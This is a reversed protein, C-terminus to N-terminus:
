IYQDPLRFALFVENNGNTNKTVVIFDDTPETSTPNTLTQITVQFNNGAALITSASFELEIDVQQGTVTCTLSSALNTVGVCTVTGPVTMQAPFTISLKDGNVLDSPSNITFTVNNQAGHVLSTSSLSVSQLDNTTTMTVSIGSTIQDIDYDESTLTKATFTSSPELSVANRIGSIDFSVTSGSALSSILFGDEM